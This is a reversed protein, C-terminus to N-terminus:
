TKVNEGMDLTDIDHDWWKSKRELLNIIDKQSFLYFHNLDCDMNLGYPKWLGTARHTHGFLNVYGDKHNRPYHNLYFNIGNITLFEEKKVDFFGNQKCFEKFKDFDSNFHQSIIREENNGIILIIKAKIKKAYILSNKWTTTDTKNYNAFDGLHFIVDDKRTQKNWLSIVFKDFKKANKFPRNERELTEKSNFHTDSTFYIM